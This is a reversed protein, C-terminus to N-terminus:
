GSDILASNYSVNADIKYVRFITNYKYNYNYLYCM